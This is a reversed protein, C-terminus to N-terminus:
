WRASSAGAKTRSCEEVDPGKQPGDRVSPDHEDRALSFEICDIHVAEAIPPDGADAPQSKAYRTDVRVHRDRAVPTPCQRGLHLSEIRVEHPQVVKSSLGGGLM